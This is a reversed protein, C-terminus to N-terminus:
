KRDGAWGIEQIELIQKRNYLYEKNFKDVFRIHTDNLDLIKKVTYFISKHRLEVTLKCSRGILDKMPKLDGQM